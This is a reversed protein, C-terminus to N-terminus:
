ITLKDSGLYEVFPTQKFLGLAVFSMYAHATNSYPGVVITWKWKFFLVASKACALQFKGKFLCM